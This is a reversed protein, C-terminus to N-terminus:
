DDLVIDWEEELWIMMEDFDVEFIECLRRANDKTYYLYEVELLTDINETNIKIKDPFKEKVRSLGYLSREIDINVYYDDPAIYHNENLVFEKDKVYIVAEAWYTTHKGNHNYNTRLEIFDIDSETYENIVQNDKNYEIISGDNYFEVRSYKDALMVSCFVIFLTFIVVKLIRVFKTPLQKKDTFRYMLRRGSIFEFFNPVCFYFLIFALGYYISFMDFYIAYMNDKSIHVSCWDSEYISLVTLSLLLIICGDVLRQLYLNKTQNEGAIIKSM